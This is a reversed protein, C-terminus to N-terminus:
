RDRATGAVSPAAPDPALRLPSWQPPGSQRRNTDYQLALTTVQGAGDGTLRAIMSPLAGGPVIVASGDPSWSLFETGLEPLLFTQDTGDLARVRLRDGNEVYALARGDPSWVPM